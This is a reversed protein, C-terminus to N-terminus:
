LNEGHGRWASSKRWDKCKLISNERQGRTKWQSILWNSVGFKRPFMVGLIHFIERIVWTDWQYDMRASCLNYM